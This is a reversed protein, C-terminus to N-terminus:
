IVREQFKGWKVVDGERVELFSLLERATKGKLVPGEYIEMLPILVFPREGIRPHPIILDESSFTEDGYLLIDLDITRPGWPIGKERNLDEEIGKLFSLLLPPSMPTIGELVANLFLGQQLYGMPKTQYISSIREVKMGEKLAILAQELYKERPEINSGLGIFVGKM